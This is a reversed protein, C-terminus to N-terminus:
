VMFSGIGVADATENHDVDKPVITDLHSVLLITREGRAGPLFGVANGM